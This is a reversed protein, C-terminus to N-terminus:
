DNPIININSLDSQEEASMLGMTAGPQAARAARALARAMMMYRPYKKWNSKSSLEAAVADSWRFSLQYTFWRNLVYTNIEITTIIDAKMKPTGDENKVENGNSDIVQEFIKEFDKLVVFESGAERAKAVLLHTTPTPVGNIMPLNCLGSLPPMGLEKARAIGVRVSAVSTYSSPLCKSNIFDQIVDNSINYYQELNMKQEITLISHPVKLPKLAVEETDIVQVETM